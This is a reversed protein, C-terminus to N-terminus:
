GKEHVGLKEMLEARSLPPVHSHLFYKIDLPALADAMQRCLRWDKKWDPFRGSSADGLFLVKEGPVEVFTSDDTHPSPAEFIRIPCNGADFFRQGTFEMDAPVVKVPRGGAYEQRISEDNAFFFGTGERAIRGQFDRLYQNTRANALSNGVIAHLGLTHDWHWHTLVTLQPLPLGEAQIAEYFERTHADSHGADVAMSWSDGRIYGLHPRDRREESPSYWIRETLHVLKMVSVKREREDANRDTFTLSGFYAVCLM